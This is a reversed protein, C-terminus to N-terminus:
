SRIQQIQQDLFNYQQILCALLDHRQPQPLSSIYCRQIQMGIENQLQMYYMCQKNEAERAMLYYCLYNVSVYGMRLANALSATEEPSHNQAVVHQLKDPTLITIWRRRINRCIRGCLM